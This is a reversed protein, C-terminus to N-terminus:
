NKFFWVTKHSAERCCGPCDHDLRIAMLGGPVQDWVGAIAEWCEEIDGEAEFVVGGRAVLTLGDLDDSEAHDYESFYARVEDFSSVGIADDTRANYAWPHCARSAKTKRIEM